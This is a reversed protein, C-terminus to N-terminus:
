DQVRGSVCRMTSARGACLVRLPLIHRYDSQPLFKLLSTERLRTDLVIEEPPNLLM